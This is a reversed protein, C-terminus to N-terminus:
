KAGSLFPAAAELAVRAYAEWTQSEDRDETLAFQQLADTVARVVKESLKMSMGENPIHISM